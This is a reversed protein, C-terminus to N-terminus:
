PPKFKQRKGVVVEKPAHSREASCENREGPRMKIVVMKYPSLFSLTWWTLLLQGNLSSVVSGKKNVMVYGCGAGQLSLMSARPRMECWWRQCMFVLLSWCMEGTSGHMESRRNGALTLWHRKSPVAQLSRETSSVRGPFGQIENRVDTKGQGPEVKRINLLRNFPTTNPNHTNGVKNTESTRTDPQNPSLSGKTKWGSRSTWLLIM